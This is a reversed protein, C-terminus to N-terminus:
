SEWEWQSQEVGTTLIQKHLKTSVEATRVLFASLFNLRDMRTWPLYGGAYQRERLPYWYM